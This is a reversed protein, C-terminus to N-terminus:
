DDTEAAMRVKGGDELTAPPDLVVTEGPSLGSLVQRDDGLAIGTELARREVADDEGLAFAVTEGDREVIAASPVRVGQPQDDAKAGPKELFSVRVGMEPVIRPDKEKLAIRV